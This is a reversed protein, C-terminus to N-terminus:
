SYSWLKPELSFAFNCFSLMKNLKHHCLYYMKCFCKNKNKLLTYEDRQRFKTLSTTIGANSLIKIMTKDKFTAGFVLVSSLFYTSWLIFLVSIIDSNSNFYILYTVCRCLGGGGVMNEINFRTGLTRWIHYHGPGNNKFYQLDARMVEYSLNNSKFLGIRRWHVM